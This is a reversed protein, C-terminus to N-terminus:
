PSHTMVVPKAPSLSRCQLVAFAVGLILGLIHCFFDILSSHRTTLFHQLTEISFAILTGLIFVLGLATISSNLRENIVHYGLLGIPLFAIIHLMAELDFKLDKFLSLHPLKLDSWDYNWILRSIHLDLPNDIKSSNPIIKGNKNRFEYLAVLGNSVRQDMEDTNDKVFWGARYNKAIEKENLPRNYIALSFLKGLWPRDGTVENGISLYYTPNWNSFRGGPLKKNVRLKGDIYANQESYDYTVIIHRTKSSNFVNDVEIHPFIGNLDTETTRLRMVLKDRSQALTFNRLYPNLSYSIIRAPGIQLINQPSLWVEVSLGSGSIMRNFFDEPTSRSIVQGTGSFEIGGSNEIYNVRNPKLFIFDLPWLSLLCFILLYIFLWKFNLISM